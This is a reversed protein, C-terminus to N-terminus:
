DVTPPAATGLKGVVVGAARNAIRVASAMPARASLVRPNHRHRRRRLRRLSRLSQPLDEVGAASYLTM